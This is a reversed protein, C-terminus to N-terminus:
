RLQDKFPRAGGTDIRHPLADCHGLDFDSRSFVDAYDHVLQRAASFEDPSLGDPFGDIVPQLYNLGGTGFPRPSAVPDTTVPNSPAPGPAPCGAVPCTEAGGGVFPPDPVRGSPRDNMVEAPYASGLCSEAQLSRPQDSLNVVRVFARSEDKPLLSRAVVVNQCTQRPDLVWETDNHKREYSTWALRVPLNIETRPPVVANESVYVRRIAPRRPRNVFAVKGAIKITGRVFDWVCENAQLWDIGLMPEDVADSVLFRSHVPVGAVEFKVLVTGMVPIKSGNAAYVKIGTPFLPAQPVFRRPLMSLNCGMDLLCTIDRRAVFIKLYTRTGSMRSAAGQARPRDRQPCEAKWHGKQRCYHCRDNDRNRPPRRYPTHRFSTDTTSAAPVQSAETFYGVPSPISPATWSTTNAFPVAPLRPPAMPLAQWQPPAPPPAQWNVAAPGGSCQDPSWTPRAPEAQQRTMGAALEAVESRLEQVMTVLDKNEDATSVKIFRDKRRGVDDWNDEVEGYGLAELRTALMLAQELTEPDRELVRLRLAPDALSDVFADRAM